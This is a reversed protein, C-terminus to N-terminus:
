ADVCTVRYSFDRALFGRLGGEHVGVVRRDYNGPIGVFYYTPSGRGVM